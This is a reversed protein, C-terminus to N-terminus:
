LVSIQSGDFVVARTPMPMAGSGVQAGGIRAIFDLLDLAFLRCARTHARLGAAGLLQRAALRDLVTANLAADFLPLGFHAELPVWRGGLRAMRVYGCGSSLGLAAAVRQVSADAALAAAAQAAGAPRLPTMGEMPTVSAASPTEPPSPELPAAEAAAPAAAADDLPAPGVALDDPLPANPFPIDVTDVRARDAALAIVLVPSLRLADNLVSLMVPVGVISPDHNWTCLLV